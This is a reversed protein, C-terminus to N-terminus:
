KAGKEQEAIAVESDHAIEKVKHILWYEFGLVLIILVSWGIMVSAFILLVTATPKMYIKKPDHQNVYVTIKDGVKGFNQIVNAVPVSKYHVGHYDYAVKKRNDVKIVQATVATKPAKHETLYRQFSMGGAFLLILAFVALIIRSLRQLFKTM